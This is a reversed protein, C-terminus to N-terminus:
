QWVGELNAVRRFAVEINAPDSGDIVRGGDTEVITKLQSLETTWHNSFSEFVENIAIRYVAEIVGAKMANLLLARAEKAELEFRQALNGPTIITLPKQRTIWSLIPENDAGAGAKSQMRSTESLTRAIEDVSYYSASEKNWVFFLEAGFDWFKLRTFLKEELWFLVITNPTANSFALNAAALLDEKNVGPLHDAFFHTLASEISGAESNASVDIRGLVTDVDARMRVVRKNGGLLFYNLATQIGISRTKWGFSANLMKVFSALVAEYSEATSDRSRSNSFGPYSIVLLKDDPHVRVVIPHRTVVTQRKRVDTEVEVWEKLEVDHEFTLSLTRSSSLHAFRFVYNGYGFSRGVKESDLNSGSFSDLRILLCHKFPQSSEAELLAREIEEISAGTSVVADLSAAHAKLSIKKKPALRYM